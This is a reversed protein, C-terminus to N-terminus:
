QSPIASPSTCCKGLEVEFNECIGKFSADDCVYLHTKAPPDDRTTTLTYQLPPFQFTLNTIYRPIIPMALVSTTLTLLLTTTLKM